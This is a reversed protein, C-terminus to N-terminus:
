LAANPGARRTPKRMTVFEEATSPHIGVTSDLQKKTCGCKIAVGMGQMIEAADAGVMHMGLVQAGVLSMIPHNDFPQASRKWSICRALQVQSPRWCEEACTANTIHGNLGQPHPRPSCARVKDTAVDVICKMLCKEDRGSITAKMPKFAAVYVDCTYGQKM